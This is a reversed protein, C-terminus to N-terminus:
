LHPPQHGTARKLTADGLAAYRGNNMLIRTNGAGAILSTKHRLATDEWDRYGEPPLYAGRRYEGEIGTVIQMSNTAAASVGDDTQRSNVFFDNGPLSAHDWAVIKYLAYGSFDDGDEAFDQPSSLQPKGPNKLAPRQRYQIGHFVADDNDGENFPDYRVAGIHPLAGGERALIDRLARDLHGGMEGAFEGAFAGAGIGPLVVLAKHGAKGAAENAAHLLPLIRREILATYKKADIGGQADTAELYDPSTGIFGGGTNLLPGPMFMLTGELPPSHRRFAPESPNWAGNDFIRVKMVVGIDGLLSLEHPTWDSGDGRIESEAFIRPQKTALLAEIFEGTTMGDHLRPSLRAGPRTKGNEIDSKYDLLACLTKESLM